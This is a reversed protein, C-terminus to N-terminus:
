SRSIFHGTQVRAADKNPSAVDAAVNVTTFVFSEPGPESRCAIRSEL